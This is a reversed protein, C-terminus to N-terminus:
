PRGGGKGDTGLALEIEQRAQHLRRRVTGPPCRLVTAIEAGDLGEIEFMVFVARLHPKLGVIAEQAARVAAESLPGSSPTAAPPPDLNLLREVADLFRRRRRMRGVQSLCIRYLWTKFGADARFRGLYRFVQIFVEQCLDPLDDGRVGMGLAFRRVVPYYARHLDRWAGPVGDVCRRVLSHEAADESSPSSSSM